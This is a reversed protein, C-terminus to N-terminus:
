ARRIRRRVMLLSAAGLGLLALSSPEPVTSGRSYTAEFRMDNGNAWPGWSNGGNDLWWEGGAYDNSSNFHVTSGTNGLYNFQVAYQTGGNLALNLTLQNYGANFNATTSYLVAGPGSAWERVLVQHTNAQGLWWGFTNLTVNGSFNLTQASQEWLNNISGTWGAATSITQASLPATALTAATAIAAFLRKM